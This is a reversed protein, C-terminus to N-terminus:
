EPPTITAFTVRMLDLRRAVDMVRVVAEHPARRDARVVVVPNSAAGAAQQMARYLTQEDSNILPTSEQQEPGRVAYQEAASIQVELLPTQEDVRQEVSAEPLRIQLRSERNFTTSVMFFILLLFVVDILPTLNIQLDEDHRDYFKM